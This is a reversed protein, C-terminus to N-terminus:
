PSAEGRDAPLSCGYAQSTSAGFSRVPRAALIDQLALQAYQSAPDVCYRSSNFNGRYALVGGRDLVVAQPTSYVGLAHAIAGDLDFVSTGALKLEEVADALQTASEGQLVNVVRIRDGFEREIECVHDLNFRSCPCRPNFFHLLTPLDSRVVASLSPPLDPRSGMAPQILGAPVPTPLSWRLDQQWFAAGIWALLSLASIVALLRRTGASLAARFKVTQFPSM